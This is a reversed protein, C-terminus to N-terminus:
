SKDLIEIKAQIFDKDSLYLLDKIKRIYYEEYKDIKNDVGAVQWLAKLLKIKKENDWEKNILATFEYLSVSEESKIKVQETFANNFEVPSTKFTQQLHKIAIDVEDQAIDDDARAIEILLVGAAIAIQESEDDDKLNESNSFLSKIQNLM